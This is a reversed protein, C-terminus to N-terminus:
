RGRAKATRDIIELTMRSLKAVRDAHDGATMLKLAADRDIRLVLASPIEGRVDFETMHCLAPVNRRM